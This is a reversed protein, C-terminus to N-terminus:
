KCNSDIEKLAATIGSLSIRYETATGRASIGKIRMSSGRKMANILAKEEDATRLWAGKEDTFMDWKSSGVELTVASDEKFSYGTVVSPEGSTNNTVWNTVIFFVDGHNVNAPLREEPSSVAFCAIKGEDSMKYAHWDNFDGLPQPDDAQAGGAAALTVFILFLAFHLNRFLMTISLKVDIISAGRRDKRSTGM